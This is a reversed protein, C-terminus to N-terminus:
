QDSENKKMIDHLEKALARTTALMLRQADESCSSYLKTIEAINSKTQETVPDLFVDLSVNMFEAIKKMLKFSPNSKGNEINGLHKSTIGVAEALEDQTLKRKKREARIIKGIALKEDKSIEM